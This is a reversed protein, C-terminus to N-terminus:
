EEDGNRARDERDASSNEDQSIFVADADFGHKCADREESEPNARVSQKLRNKSQDIGRSFASPLIADYRFPAV